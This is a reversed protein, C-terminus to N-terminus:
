GEMGAVVEKVIDYGDDDDDDRGEMWTGVMM